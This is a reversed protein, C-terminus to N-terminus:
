KTKVPKTAKVKHSVHHAHKVPTPTAKKVGADPIPSSSDAQPALTVDPSATQALAPLVFGSALVSALAIKRFYM